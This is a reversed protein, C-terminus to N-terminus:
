TRLALSGLPIRLLTRRPSYRQGSGVPKAADAAAAISVPNGAALGSIAVDGTEFDSQLLRLDARSKGRSVFAAQSEDESRFEAIENSAISIGSITGAPWSRPPM